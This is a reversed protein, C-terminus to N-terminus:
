TFQLSFDDSGDTDAAAFEISHTLLQERDGYSINRFYGYPISLAWQNGGTDGIVGTQIAQNTGNRLTGVWDKTGIATAEPDFTGNPRRATIRIEGFGDANNPNPAVAITNSVDFTLANIVAAYGGVSFTAGLFPYPDVTPFTPTPASTETESEIRGKMTFSLKGYEGTTANLSVNGRAGKIIRYNAGERFGITVGAHSSLDSSPTYTVSTSAVITEDMGCAQLLAGLAQPPTGATGSGAIEVDFSLEFLSGGYIAKKPNLSSAIVDREIMRVDAVPNASLNSILLADAGVLTEATGYVAELKVFIGQEKVSTM